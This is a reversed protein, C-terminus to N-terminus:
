AKAPGALSPWVKDDDVLNFEERDRDAYRAAGRSDRTNDGRRGNRKGRSRGEGNGSGRNRGFIENV